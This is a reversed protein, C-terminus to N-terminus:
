VPNQVRGEGAARGTSWCSQLNFGGTPGDLDLLEGAFYVNECLKSRMTVPDVEGLCVGGRTVIAHDFSWLGNVGLPINKLLFALGKREEPTVLEAPRDPSIDSLALIPPILVRPLLDTLASSFDKDSHNELDRGIRATLKEESLAPKLDLILSVAGRTMWDPVSPSLDMVIPGSVGFNTFEMEGFREGIKEGNLVVSLRVNRLNFGHALKV